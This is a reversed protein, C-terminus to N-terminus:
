RLLRLACRLLSPPPFIDFEEYFSDENEETLIKSELDTLSDCIQPEETVEAVTSEINEFVM